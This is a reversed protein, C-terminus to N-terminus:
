EEWYLYDILYISELRGNRLIEKRTLFGRDYEHIWHVADGNSMVLMTHKPKGDYRLVECRHEPQERLVSGDLVNLEKLKIVKERKIMHHDDYRYSKSLYDSGDPSFKERKEIMDGEQDYIMVFHLTTDTVLGTSDYFIEWENIQRIDNTYIRMWDHDSEQAQCTYSLGGISILILLASTCPGHFLTKSQVSSSGRFTKASKLIRILAQWRIM